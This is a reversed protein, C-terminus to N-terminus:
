NLCLAAIQRARDAHRWRWVRTYGNSGAKPAVLFLAAVVLMASGCHNQGVIEFAQVNWGGGLNYVVQGPVMSLPVFASHGDAAVKQGIALCAPRDECDAAPKPEAVKPTEPATTQGSEQKPWLLRLVANIFSMVNTQRKARVVSPLTKLGQKEGSAKNRVEATDCGM